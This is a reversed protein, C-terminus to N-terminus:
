RPDWNRIPVNTGPAGESYILPIDTQPHKTNVDLVYRRGWPDVLLSDKIYAPKNTQQDRQALIEISDPYAGFHDTQYASVAQELTKVDLKAKNVNADALFRPLVLAGAGALILIIAVVVIIEMLTFAARKVQQDRQLVM